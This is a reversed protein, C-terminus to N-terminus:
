QFIMKNRITGIREVEIKVVDQDKLFRTPTMTAGIGSRRNSDLGLQYRIDHTM